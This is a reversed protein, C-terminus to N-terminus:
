AGEGEMSYVIGLSEVHKERIFWGDNKKFTYPDIEVAESKTLHTMVIGTIIKGRTTVHKILVYETKAPLRVLDSDVWEGMQIPCFGNKQQRIRTMSALHVFTKGERSAGIGVVRWTDGDLTLIQPQKESM